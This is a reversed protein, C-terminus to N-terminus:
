SEPHFRIMVEVPAPIVFPEQWVKKVPMMDLPGSLRSPDM